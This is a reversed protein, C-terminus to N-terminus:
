AIAWEYAIFAAHGGGVALGAVLLATMAVKAGSWARYDTASTARSKDVQFFWAVLLVCVISGLVYGAAHVLLQPLLLLAASGLVAAGAVALIALPPRTVDTDNGTEGDVTM